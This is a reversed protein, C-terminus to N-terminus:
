SISYMQLAIPPTDHTIQDDEIKKDDNLKQHEVIYNKVYYLEELQSCREIVKFPNKKQIECDRLGLLRLRKLESIKTPLENISCYELEFTEISPLNRIISIDDLRWGHLRVSRINNLSFLSELLSSPLFIKGYKCILLLVKLRTMGVFFSEPNNAVVEGNIILILIELKMGDFKDLVDSTSWFM